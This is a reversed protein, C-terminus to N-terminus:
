RISSAVRPSTRSRSASSPASWCALTPSSSAPAEDIIADGHLLFDLDIERPAHVRGAPRVRGLASEVGLCVDLLALASLGTGVRAVANLFPPQADPTVADTEYLPSRAEVAVGARGLRALAEEIFAARDGLNSGLGLYAITMGGHIYDRDHASAGERRCDGPQRGAQARQREQEHAIKRPSGVVSDEPEPRPQHQRGRREAQQALRHVADPARVPEVEPPERQDDDAERDADAEGGRHIPENGVVVRAPVVLVEPVLRAVVNVVLAGRALGVRHHAGEAEVADGFPEGDARAERNRARRM